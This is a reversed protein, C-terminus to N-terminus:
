LYCILNQMINKVLMPPIGEGIVKRIMKEDAWEPVNWNKPLSSVIFLELLTFCRPDSFLTEGDKVYKRGPHVCCLSSIVGCNQTMTRSPKDWNLRRYTNYHGNVREGNDKKPYYVPNDFATCGSPTHMMAVVHKKAHKPPFHFKSISLAKQRKIEFDPFLKLTEKMGEKLLPDVEPLNGIAERLTIRRQPKPMQWVFGVDKRTLLFINRKRMQPVGYDQASVLSQDAFYYSEDFEKHLYEPILMIENNVKISTTLIQPVNELFVFKPRIKKIIEVAYFILQNRIDLPDRKGALSMGQCPPTAIVMDVNHTKAESLMANQVDEKTIDGVIMKTDPYLHQYFAGRQKDIENAAVVDIGIEKLYTEAVGVNAFLSIAKIRNKM